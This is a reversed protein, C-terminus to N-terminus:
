RAEVAEMRLTLEKIAGIMISITPFVSEGDADPRLTIEGDKELYPIDDANRKMLTGDPNKGPVYVAKPMKRYDLCPKGYDTKRTPHAVWQKLSETDSVIRGDRLEVGGDFCGYSGGGNKVLDKMNVELWYNTSDGQLMSTGSVSFKTTTMNIEAASISFRKTGGVYFDWVNASSELCYTDGGGDLYFRGTAKLKMYSNTTDLSFLETGAANNVLFKTTGNASPTITLGGLSSTQAELGSIANFLNAIDTNYAASSAINGSTPTYAKSLNLAM